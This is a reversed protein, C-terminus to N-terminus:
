EHENAALASKNSWDHRLVFFCLILFVTNRTILLLYNTSEGSSEAGFCGCSIELGRILASAHLGIFVVLLLAILLGSSRKLQPLLIGIGLTLELWPLVLAVWLSLSPGVVRFASVSEAFVVPDKIKPLAAAVFVWTLILRAILVFFYSYNVGGM